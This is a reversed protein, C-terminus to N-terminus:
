YMIAMAFGKRGPQVTPVLRVTRAGPRTDYIRRNIAGDILSGVAAAPLVFGFTGIVWAGVKAGKECSPTCEKDVAIAYIAIASAAGIAAGKRTSDVLDITRVTDRDVTLEIARRLPWIGRPQRKITLEHGEVRVVRGTIARGTEPRVTIEQGVGVPPPWAPLSDVEKAAGQALATAPVTVGYAVGIALMLRAVLASMDILRVIRLM